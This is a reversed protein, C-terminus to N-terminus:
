CCTQRRCFRTTLRQYKNNVRSSVCRLEKLVKEVDAIDFEDGDIWPGIAESYDAVTRQFEITLEIASKGFAQDQRSLSRQCGGLRLSLSILVCLVSEVYAKGFLLFSGYRHGFRAIISSFWM